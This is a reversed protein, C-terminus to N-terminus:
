PKQFSIDNPDNVQAAPNERNKNALSSFNFSSRRQTETSNGSVTKPQAVNEVLPWYQPLEKQIRERLSHFAQSDSRAFKLLIKLTDQDVLGDNKWELAKFCEEIAQTVNGTRCAAEIFSELNKKNIEYVQEDSQQMKLSEWLRAAKGFEGSYGYVDMIISITVNNFPIKNMLISRWVDVANNLNGTKSYAYMLRNMLGIDPDYYHDMKILSHILRVAEASGSKYGGGERAYYHLVAQYVPSDPPVNSKRMDEFFAFFVSSPVFSKKANGAEDKFSLDTYTRIIEYWDQKSFINDANVAWMWSYAKFAQSHDKSANKMLSTVISAATTSAVSTIPQDQRIYKKPLTAENGNLISLGHSKLDEMLTTAWSLDSVDERACYQLLAIYLSVDHIGDRSRADSLRSRGLDGYITKITELAEIDAEGEPIKSVIARLMGSSISIGDRHSDRLLSLADEFTESLRMACEYATYDPLLGTASEVYGLADRLVQLARSQAETGIYDQFVSATIDRRQSPSVLMIKRCREKADQYQEMMVEHRVLAAQVELSRSEDDHASLESYARQAAESDGFRSYGNLLATQLKKKHVGSQDVSDIQRIIEQVENQVYTGGKRLSQRDNFLAELLIIYTTSDRLAQPVENLKSKTASYSHGRSERYAKLYTNWDQPIRDTPSPGGAYRADHLMAHADELRGSYVLAEIYASLGEPSQDDQHWLTGLDQSMRRVALFDENIYSTQSLLRM